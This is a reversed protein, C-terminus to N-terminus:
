GIFPHILIAVCWYYTTLSLTDPDLSLIEHTSHNIVALYQQRRTAVPAALRQPIKPM